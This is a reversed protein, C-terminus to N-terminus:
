FSISSPLSWWTWPDSLGPLSLGGKASICSHWGVGCFFVSCMFMSRFLVTEVGQGDRCQAHVSAATPDLGPTGNALRWVAEKRHGQWPVLAALNEADRKISQAEVRSFCIYRRHCVTDVNGLLVNHPSPNWIYIRNLDRKPDTPGSLFRHWRSGISFEAIKAACQEEGEM